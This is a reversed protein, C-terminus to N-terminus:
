APQRTGVAAMSVRLRARDLSRRAREIDVDGGQQIRDLARREAAQAREIDINSAPEATEALITVKNNLVEVFGGSTAFAIREGVPTTVYIPGLEIAALLPAHDTLVEFAGEVGPARMREAEGRFVSGSPSVIMVYLKGTM